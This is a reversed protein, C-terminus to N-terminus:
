PGAQTLWSSLLGLDLVTNGSLPGLYYLHAIGSDNVALFGGGNYARFRYGTISQSAGNAPSFFDPYTREAWSFVKDADATFSVTPSAEKFSATVSKATDMTVTCTAETGASACAGGWALLDAPPTAILTVAFGKGAKGSCVSGCSIPGGSVTGTGNKAVSLALTDLAADFSAFSQGARVLRVQYSYSKVFNVAYGVNFVVYWANSSSGAYASASWFGSAPTNPFISSNISPSFCKDEVISELEKMNPLRWDNYGAANAPVAAKLANAWTATSASGTCTTGSWAQGEACRKWMLGTRSHTVTGNGNDVFDATPTAEPISANCSQQAQASCSLGVLCALQVIRQFLKM